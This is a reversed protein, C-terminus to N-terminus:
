QTSTPIRKQIPNLSIREYNILKGCLHEDCAGNLVHSKM